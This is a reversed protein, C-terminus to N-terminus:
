QGQGSAREHTRHQPLHVEHSVGEVGLYAPQTPLHVGWNGVRCWPRHMLLQDLQAEEYCSGCILWSHGKFQVELVEKM